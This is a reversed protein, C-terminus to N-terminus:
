QFRTLPGSMTSLASVFFACTTSISGVSVDNVVFSQWAHCSVSAGEGGLAGTIEETL